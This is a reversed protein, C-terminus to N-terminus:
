QVHKIRRPYDRPREIYIPCTHDPMEFEFGYVSGKKGDLNM